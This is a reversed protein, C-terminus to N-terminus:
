FVSDDVSIAWNPVYNRAAFRAMDYSDHVPFALLMCKKYHFENVVEHLKNYNEMYYEFGHQSSERLVVDHVVDFHDEDQIKKKKWNLMDGISTKDLPACLWSGDWRFGRKIFQTDTLSKGVPIGDKTASTYVMGYLAFHEVVDEACVQHKDDFSWINDDGYVGLSFFNDVDLLAATGFKAYIFSHFLFMNYMSNIISTAPHGSPLSGTKKYLQGCLFSDGGLHTTDYVDKCLGQMIEVDGLHSMRMCLHDLLAKLVLPHQRKDFQKFDGDFIPTGYKSLGSAFQAWEESYPNIGIMGGHLLRTRMFEGTFMGFYKRWLLTYHVPACSLLRTQCNAVKSQPLTEAKLAGRYIVNTHGQMYLEALEDVDNFIKKADPSELTYVTEGFAKRKDHLSLCYPYGPSTGRNIPQVYKHENGMVIEENTLKRLKDTDIFMLIRNVTFRAVLDYHEPINDAFDVNTAEIAKVMPDVLNGDVYRPRLAAVANSSKEIAGSYVTKVIGPDGSNFVPTAEGVFTISGQASIYPEFDDLFMPTYYASVDSGGSHIGLIRKQNSANSRIVLSGCDGNETLADYKVLFVNMGGMANSYHKKVEGGESYHLTGRDGKLLLVHGREIRTRKRMHPRLDRVNQLSVKLTEIALDRVCDNEKFPGVVVGVDLDYRQGLWKFYFKINHARMQDVFHYSYAVTRHDVLVVRGIVKEMGNYDCLMPTIHSSLAFAVQDNQAVIPSESKHKKLGSPLLSLLAKVLACIVTVQICLPAFKKVKSVVSTLKSINKRMKDGIKAINGVARVVTVVGVAALVNVIGSQAEVNQEHTRSDNEEQENVITEVIKSIHKEMNVRRNYRQRVQKLVDFVSMADGSASGLNFDYNRFTWNPKDCNLDGDLHMELAIDYRRLVASPCHVLGGLNFANEDNTTMIIFRSTFYCKGKSSLTAMNLPFPWQNCARIFTMVENDPSGAVLKAQGFDDFACIPQGGYGEWYESTGKCFLMKDDSQWQDREEQTCLNRAIYRALVRSFTSKGCGPSGRIVIVLPEMRTAGSAAPFISAIDALAANGKAVVIANFGSKHVTALKIGTMVLADYSSRVSSECPSLKEAMIKACFVRVCSLWNEIEKENARVLTIQERNFLRLVMNCITEIGVVSGELMSQVGRTFKEHDAVRRYLGVRKGLIFVIAATLSKGVFGSEAEIQEISFPELGNDEDLSSASLINSIDELMDDSQPIKDFLSEYEANNEEELERIRNLLEKERDEYDEFACRTSFRYEDMKSRLTTIESDLNQYREFTSKRIRSGCQTIVYPDGTYTSKSIYRRAYPTMIQMATFVRLMRTTPGVKGFVKRMIDTVLRVTLGLLLIYVVVALCSNKELINDLGGVIANVANTISSYLCKDIRPVGQAEVEEASADISTTDANGNDCWIHKYRDKIEDLDYCVHYITIPELGYEVGDDRCMIIKDVRAECARRVFGSVSKMWKSEVINKLIKTCYQPGPLPVECQKYKRFQSTLIMMENFSLCNRIQNYM